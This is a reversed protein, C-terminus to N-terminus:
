PGAPSVAPRLWEFPVWVLKGAHQGQNVRIQRENYAERRVYVRTNGPIEIAKNEAIMRRITREDGTDMAQALLHVDERALAGCVPKRTRHTLVASEGSHLIHTEPTEQYHGCSSLLLVALPAAWHVRQM